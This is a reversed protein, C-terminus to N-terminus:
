RRPRPRGHAATELDDEGAVQDDRSFATSSARSSAAVMATFAGSATRALLRIMRSDRSQGASDAKSCCAGM